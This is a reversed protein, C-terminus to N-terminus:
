KKVDCKECFDYIQTFGEYHKWVHSCSVKPTLTSPDMRFANAIAIDSEDQLRRGAESMDIHSYDDGDIKFNHYKKSTATFGGLTYRWADLTHLDKDALQWPGSDPLNFKSM